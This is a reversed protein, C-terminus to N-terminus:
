SALFTGRMDMPQLVLWVAACWILVNVIAWPAFARWTQEPQDEEAISHTWIMAGALAMVLLGLQIPQVIRVPIGTLRWLPDGLFYLGADALASQLVPVITFLGTLLHFSYHALWMGFGLPVLGYSYRVALQLLSRSTKTLTKTTQAAAGM